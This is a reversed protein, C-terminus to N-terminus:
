LRPTWPRERCRLLEARDIVVTGTSAPQTSDVVLAVGVSFPKRSSGDLAGACIMLTAVRGSASFARVVFMRRSFGPLGAGLGAEPRALAAATQALITADGAELHPHDAPDFFVDAECQSLDLDHPVSVVLEAPGLLDGGLVWIRAVRGDYVDAFVAKDGFAAFVAIPSEVATFDATLEIPAQRFLDLTPERGFAKTGFGTLRCNQLLADNRPARGAVIDRLAAFAVTM